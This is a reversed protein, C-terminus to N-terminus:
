TFNKKKGEVIVYLKEPYMLRPQCDLDKLVQFANSWASRAKLTEMSFDAITRM